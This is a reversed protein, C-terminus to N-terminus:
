LGMVNIIPPAAPAAVATYEWAGIDYSGAGGGPRSTGVIDTAANTTDTTGAGVMASTSKIRFDRTSDTINQFGSGTTTDYAIQTFGTPPSAVDTRCTTYSRTPSGSDVASVGFFACNQLTQTGSLYSYGVGVSSGALGSPKVFTCNYASWNTQVVVLQGANASRRVVLCNKFTVSGPTVAMVPYSAGGSGEIICSDIIQNGGGNVNLAQRDGLSEIQLKTLRAYQESVIVAPVGHANVSISAGNSSNWRLANTLKSSHDAFSAGSACRLETYNSSNVTSGAITLITATDTANFGALMEGIWPSGATVLNAPKADEWAQLTSYTGGSGITSITM